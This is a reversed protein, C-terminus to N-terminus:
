YSNNQLKIVHTHTHTAIPPTHLKIINEGIKEPMKFCFSSCHGPTARLSLQHTIQSPNPPTTEHLLHPRIPPPTDSPIPKTSEFTWVQGVTATERGGAQSELDLARM